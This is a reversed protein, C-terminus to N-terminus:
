GVLPKVQIEIGDGSAAELAIGILANTNTVGVKGDNAKYVLAGATIAVAATLIVTGASLFRVPTQEGTSRPEQTVGLWDQNADGDAYTGDYKILRRAALTEGAQVAMGPNNTQVAM